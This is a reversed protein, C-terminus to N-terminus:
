GRKGLVKLQEATTKMEDLTQLTKQQKEILAKNGAQIAQLAALPSGSVPQPAQSNLNASSFFLLAVLTNLAVPKMNM